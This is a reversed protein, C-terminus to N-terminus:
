DIIFQVYKTLFKIKKEYACMQSAMVLTMIILM